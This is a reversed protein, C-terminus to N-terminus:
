RNKEKEIQEGIRLYEELEDDIAKQRREEPTMLEYEYEEVYPIDLMPLGHFERLDNVAKQLEYYEFSDITHDNLSLYSLCLLHYPILTNPHCFFMNDVYEGYDLWQPAQNWDPFYYKTLVWNIPISQDKLKIEYTLFRRLPLEGNRVCYWRGISDFGVVLWDEEDIEVIM